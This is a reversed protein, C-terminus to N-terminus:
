LHGNKILYEKGKHGLSYTTPYSGTYYSASVLNSHDFETLYYELKAEHMGIIKALPKLEIEKDGINVLNLLINLKDEELDKLTSGKDESYNEIKQNGIANNIEDLMEKYSIRPLKSVSLHKSIGKFLKELQEASDLNIGQFESIPSPLSGKTMGSHCLPM